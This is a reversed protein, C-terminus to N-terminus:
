KQHKTSQKYQQIFSYEKRFMNSLETKFFDIASSSSSISLVVSGTNLGRKMYNHAVLVDPMDYSRDVIVRIQGTSLASVGCTNQMLSQILELRYDIDRSQLSTNIITIRKDLLKKLFYGDNIGCNSPSVDYFILRCDSGLATLNEYLYTSGFPDFIVDMMKGGSIKLLEEPFSKYKDNDIFLADAAGLARCVDLHVDKNVTAYVTNGRLTLMQIMMMGVASAGDHVLVTENAQVNGVNSVLMYASMLAFPISAMQQFDLGPIARMLNKENTIIYESYGGGDPLYAMVADNMQYGLVCDDSLGIITGSIEVGPIDHARIRGINSNGIFHDSTKAIIRIGECRLINVASVNACNVRILVDRSNGEPVDIEDTVILSLPDNAASQIITRM